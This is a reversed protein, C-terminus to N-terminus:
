SVNGIRRVARRDQTAPGYKNKWSAKKDVEKCLKRSEPLQSLIREKYVEGAYLMQSSRNCHRRRRLRRRGRIGLRVIGWLFRRRGQRVDGGLDNGLAWSQCRERGTVATKRALLGSTRKGAKDKIIKLQEFLHTPAAHSRDEFRALFTEIADDGDLRQQGVMERM